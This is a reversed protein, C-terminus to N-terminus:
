KVVITGTMHPHVACYYPYTGATKFETAFTEDTDLTGSGKFKRDTSTVTHPVDDKNTWRVKTGAAVTLTQPSYTFNDIVVEVVPAPNTAPPASMPQACAGFGALCWLVCILAYSRRM